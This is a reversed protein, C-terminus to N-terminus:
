PSEPAVTIPASNVPPQGRVVVQVPGSGATRPLAMELEFPTARRVRVRQGYVTVVQDGPRTGFGWGRVILTCGPRLCQPALETIGVGAPTEARTFPISLARGDPLRLTLPGSAADAPVLVRLETSSVFTFSAPARAGAFTVVLGQEVFGSGRVVVTQGPYAASPEVSAISADSLVVFENPSTGTGQLRVSVTIRGSTAGPPVVAEILENSYTRVEMRRGSLAVEAAAASTGFSTGVIRVVSGVTGSTPEIRAIFPPTTVVFPQTTRAQGAHLVTVTLPGSPAQPIRARLETPSVAVISCDVGMLSVRNNSAINSFGQGRLVVETGVPGSTPEFGSIVVPLLVEFPRPSVVPPLSAVSVSVPGSSAGAPIEVILETPTVSRVILPTSGIAATVQRIDSGFNAGVVRVQAGVVGAPPDLATISPPPLVTVPETSYARGAGRVDVLLLGSSANPPIEVVLETESASVVRLPVNDLFVRNSNPRAAYGTGRLTLRMGPTAVRPEFSAIRTGAGVTFSTPSTAEGAGAVRVVFPGSTAGEPVIVTIETPSAHRVVVATGALTVVNDTPRPSFNEGQIRVESGAAGAVPTFGQIVPQPVSALVRLEPGMVRTGDSLVIEIRGSRAGEPLTVTWRSPLRTVVPLEVEGLVVRQDSRFFRGVIEVTAGAPAATPELREIVPAPQRVQARVSTPAITTPAFASAFAVLLIARAFTADHLTGDNM